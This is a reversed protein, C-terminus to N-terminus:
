GVLGPVTRGVSARRGVDAPLGRPMVSTSSSVLSIWGRRLADMCASAQQTPLTSEVLRTIASQFESRMEPVNMHQEGEREPVANDNRM